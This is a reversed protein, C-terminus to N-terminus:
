SRSTTDAPAKKHKAEKVAAEAKAEKAETEPSEHEVAILSGDIANVNVEEVGSKGPVKV